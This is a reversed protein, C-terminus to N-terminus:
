KSGKPSGLDLAKWAGKEFKAIMELPAPPENAPITQVLKGEASYVMTKAQQFGVFASVSGDINPVFDTSFTTVAIKGGVAWQGKSNINEADRGITICSSCVPGSLSRVPKLDGTEYAYSMLATWHRAFAEFGAKTNAKAAEPLEPVPINRAPGTSSAPTPKSADPTPSASSTSPSPSPAPSSPGQCATLALLGAISAAAIPALRHLKLTM